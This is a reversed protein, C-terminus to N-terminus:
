KNSIICKYLRSVLVFLYGQDKIKLGQFENLSLARIWILRKRYLLDLDSMDLVEKCSRTYLTFKKIISINDISTTQAQVSSFPLAKSTAFDSFTKPFSIMSLSNFNWIFNILALYHAHLMQNLYCCVPLSTDSGSSDRGTNAPCSQWVASHMYLLETDQRQWFCFKM